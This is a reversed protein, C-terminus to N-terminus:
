HFISNEHSSDVILSRTTCPRATRLSCSGFSSARPSRFPAGDDFEATPRFSKGFRLNSRANLILAYMRALEHITPRTKSGTGAWRTECAKLVFQGLDHLDDQYLIGVGKLNGLDITQELNWGARTPM